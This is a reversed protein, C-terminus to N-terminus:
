IVDNKLAKRLHQPYLSISLVHNSLMNVQWQQNTRQTYETRQVVDCWHNTNYRHRVARDARTQTKDQNTQHSALSLWVPHNHLNTCVETLRARHKWGLRKHVQTKTKKNRRQSLHPRSSRKYQLCSGLKLRTYITLTRINTSTNQAGHLTNICKVEEKDIEQGKSAIAWSRMMMQEYSCCIATLQLSVKEFNLTYIIGHRQGTRRWSSGRLRCCLIPVSVSASEVHPHQNRSARHLLCRSSWRRQGCLSGGVPLLENGRLQAHPVIKHGFYAISNLM